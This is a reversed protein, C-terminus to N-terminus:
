EPTAQDQHEYGIYVKKPSAVLTPSAIQCAAHQAQAYSPCTVAPATDLVPALFQM